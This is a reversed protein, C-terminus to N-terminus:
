IGCSGGKCRDENEDLTVGEMGAAEYYDVRNLPQGGRANDPYATIGRLKPLYKMLTEGYGKLTEENNKESGWEPLNITSSIGHDVYQQMWAQFAVRTEFDLSYADEINEPKVGSAILRAATPDIVYQYKRSNDQGIFRRKYAVCFIPEIGTTTEGVIGITGTPAIARTKVPASLNHEAAFRGAIETSKTYSELWTALEADQAYKKGRVLLWEHVGMVGLGLRRNKERVEEVKKYPVHSYVTGALLFLTAAEVVDEFEMKTRIRALNISGLNCIDSGDKSTIETCANRLWEGENEGVDVSFGPEATTFMHRVTEWYVRRAIEHKSSCPNHYASFFEGDLAVSINTHDLPAPFDFNKAKLAKVEDSWDKSTIWEMIDPHWWHLGGWIAARRAGGQRIGRAMDNVGMALPLPGSADGGTKAIPTGRARLLSYVAGYGAGSMLTTTARYMLEAWGERSDEAIDLLCNQVQHYPRGAAYLYRGGPLFQRRQMYFIIKETKPHDPAYGLAAMVHVGVRTCTQAWTETPATHQNERFSYKAKHITDAWPSLELSYPFDSMTIEAPFFPDRDGKYPHEV